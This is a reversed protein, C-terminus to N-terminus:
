RNLADHVTQREHKTARTIGLTVAPRSVGLLAALESHRVGGRDLFALKADRAALTEAAAQATRKALEDLRRLEAREDLTLSRRVRYM